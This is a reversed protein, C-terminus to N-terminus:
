NEDRTVRLYVDTDNPRVQVVRDDLERRLEEYFEDIIEFSFGAEDFLQEPTLPKGAEVLVEYLSRRKKRRRVKGGKARRARRKAEEQKERKAKEERIRELLVSAPEDSPDQQVLKGQFARELAAQRLQEAQVLYTSVSTGLVEVMSLQREVEAVIRRQEALPPLPIPTARLSPKLISPVTTGSSHLQLYRRVLEASFCYKLYSNSVELTQFAIVRQTLLYTGKQPYLAVEGVPAETTVILDGPKPIGRTAWRAYTEESVFREKDLVIQGQQVNAASIVPIGQSSYPPTKGRYDVTFYTLSDLNTWVWGEPLPPLSATNLPLPDEYHQLVESDSLEKGQSRLKDLEAQLWAHKRKELIRALLRDAPEYDRGEVQALEAEHPVLRGEYATKFLVAKYRQLNAQVGKLANAGVDLRTFQKEIEAVIRNQEPLPALPITQSYLEDRNLGPVATSKDLLGLNLSNLAYYLYKSSMENPPQTYYTTDIPWCDAESYHIAGATGKRGIIICPGSVLARDHRGIIGSSGYVPVQGSSSRESKKLGKGYEIILIDRLTPWVWGSPPAQAECEKIQKLTLEQEKM